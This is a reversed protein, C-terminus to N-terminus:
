SWTSGKCWECRWSPKWTDGTSKPCPVNEGIAEIFAAQLPARNKHSEMVSLTVTLDFLYYGWGCNEFDLVYVEGDHFLFNKLHLDRHIIGYVDSGKGLYTCLIFPCRHTSV